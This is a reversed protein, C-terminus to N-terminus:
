RSLQCYWNATNVANNFVTNNYLLLNSNFFSDPLKHAFLAQLRSILPAAKQLNITKTRVISSECDISKSLKQLASRHIVVSNKYDTPLTCM